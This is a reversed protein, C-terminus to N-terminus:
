VTEQGHHKEILEAIRDRFGQMTGSWRPHERVLAACRAREAAEALSAEGTLFENEARLRTNEIHLDQYRLMLLALKESIRRGVALADLVKGRDVRHSTAVDAHIAMPWTPVVGIVHEVTPPV